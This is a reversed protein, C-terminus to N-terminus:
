NQMSTVKKLHSSFNQGYFIKDGLIMAVNNDGIFEEGVIFKEALGNSQEQM